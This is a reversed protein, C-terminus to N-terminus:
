RPPPQNTRGSTHQLAAELDNIRKQVRNPFPSDPKSQKFYAIAQNTHGLQLEVDALSDLIRSHLHIDREGERTDAKLPKPAEVENWSKLAGLWVNRAHVPDKLNEFYIRGLEYRLEPSNPNARLGAELFEKADEPKKLFARLFYSSVIYTQIRHPDLDASLRMWPLMEAVQEGKLHTHRNPLFHRGFADIWDHPPGRFGEEPPANTEEPHSVDSDKEEEQRAQDFISPYYGSHFYIDARVYFYDAVMERGDGLLSGLVSDTRIGRSLREERRPQLWAALSFSVVLLLILIFRPRFMM